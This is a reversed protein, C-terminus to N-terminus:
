KRKANSKFKKFTEELFKDYDWGKASWETRQKEQWRDMENKLRSKSFFSIAEIPNKIKDLKESEEKLKQERKKIVKRM